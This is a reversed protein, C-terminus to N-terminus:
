NPLEDEEGDVLWGLLAAGGGRSFFDGDNSNPLLAAGPPAGAKANPPPAAAAAFVGESLEPAGNANPPAELSLVEIPLEVEDMGVVAM